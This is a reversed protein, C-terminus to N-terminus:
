KRREDIDEYRFSRKVLDPAPKGDVEAYPFILINVPEGKQPPVLTLDRGVTFEVRDETWAGFYYEALEPHKTAESIDVPVWGYGAVYFEAWCHYGGIEGAGRAEPIPFGCRFRAPIGSARCMGIFVAHFDSCNGRKSDCAWLADGRGWGSGSKDYKMSTRVEDYFRRALNVANKEEGAVRKAREGIPGELPVLKDPALYRALDRKEEESLAQAGRGRFDKRLREHRVVDYVVDYVAAAEGAIPLHFCLNEPRPALAQVATPALVKVEQEDNSQAIPVWVEAGPPLRAELHYTFQFHRKKLPILYADPRPEDARAGGAALVAAFIALSITRQM